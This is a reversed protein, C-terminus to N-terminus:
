KGRSGCGRGFLGRGGDPQGGGVPNRRVPLQDSRKEVDDPVPMGMQVMLGIERKGIADKPHLYGTRGVPIRQLTVEAGVSAVCRLTRLPPGPTIM